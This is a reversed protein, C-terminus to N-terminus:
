VRYNPQGRDSTGPQDRTLDDTTRCYRRDPGSVALVWWILLGQLPLRGWLAWQPMPHASVQVSHSAMYINAPFVAVLLAALGWGAARRLKPILLGLGGAMEAVGSIYVLTRPAPLYPSVIKEFLDTHLFHLSGAAVFSVAATM